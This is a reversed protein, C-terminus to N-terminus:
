TTTAFAPEEEEELVGQPFAVVLVECPAKKLVHEVTPDNWTTTKMKQCPGCWGATFYALVPKRSARSEQQATSFDNRWPVLELSSQDASGSEGNRRAVRDGAAEDLKVSVHKEKGDRSITVYLRLFPSAKYQAPQYASAHGELSM